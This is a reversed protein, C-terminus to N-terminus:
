KRRELLLFYYFCGNEGGRFVQNKDACLSILIFYKNEHWRHHRLTQLPFKSHFDDIQIFMAHFEKSLSHHSDTHIHTNHSICDIKNVKMTKRQRRQRTM